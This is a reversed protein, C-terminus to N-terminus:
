FAFPDAKLTTVGDSRSVVAYKYTAGHGITPIFGTWIGSQHDFELQHGPLQWTNWDGVVSVSHANPAWVTFQTGDVSGVSAPHAGMTQYARRPSVGDLRIGPKQAPLPEPM